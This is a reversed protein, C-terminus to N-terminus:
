AAKVKIRATTPRGTSVQTAGTRNTAKLKDKASAIKRPSDDKINLNLKTSKKALTPPKVVELQENQNTKMEVFKRSKDSIKISPARKPSEVKGPSTQEHDDEEAKNYEFPENATTSNLFDMMRKQISLQEKVYNRRRESNKEHLEFMKYFNLYMWFTWKIRQTYKREQHLM